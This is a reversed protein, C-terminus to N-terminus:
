KTKRAIKKKTTNTPTKSPNKTSKSKTQKRNAKVVYQRLREGIFRARRKKRDRGRKKRPVLLDPALTPLPPAKLLDRIAVQHYCFLNSGFDKCPFCSDITTFIVTT